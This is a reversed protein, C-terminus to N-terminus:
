KSLIRSRQQDKRASWEVNDATVENRRYIKFSVTNRLVGCANLGHCKQLIVEMAAEMCTLCASISLNRPCQGVSKLIANTPLKIELDRIFYGEWKSSVTKVLLRMEKRVAKNFYEWYHMPVRSVSQILRFVLNPADDRDVTQNSVKYWTITSYKLSCSSSVVGCADLGHCDKLIVEMADEMCSLCAFTSLNRPCQGVSKLIANRHLQIELDRVFYREWKLPVTEVQLRM